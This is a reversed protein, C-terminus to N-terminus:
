YEVMGKFEYEERLFPDPYRGQYKKYDNYWQDHHNAIQNGAIKVGGM